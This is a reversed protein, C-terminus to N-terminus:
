ALLARWANRLRWGLTRRPPPVHPPPFFAPSDTAFLAMYDRYSLPTAADPQAQVALLDLAKDIDIRSQLRTRFTVLIDAAVDPLKWVTHIAALKILKEDSLTDALGKWEELGAPDRAYFADGIFLRGSVTQAPETNTYRAPLARMSYTRPEIAMLAYGQQRMFRDTNHFTHLTDDAGGFMLVELRAALIGFSGFLGDFSNLVRFDDGDIDIKLLDVDTTGLDHLAKPVYVPKSRDALETEWWLNHALKEKEPAGELRKARMEMSWAVSFRGFLSTSGSLPRGEARKAFPHDPPIDAFGAVYRINPHTEAAELRRCESVSADFGVGRLRDGFARWAPDIGGSCGLDVLTFHESKLGQAALQLFAENM